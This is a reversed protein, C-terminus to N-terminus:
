ARGPCAPVRRVDLAAVVFGEAAWGLLNLWDGSSGSYGHFTILAPADAAATPVLLKAYVRAGRVGDFTLDFPLDPERWYDTPVGQILPRASSPKYAPGPSPPCRPSACAKTRSWPWRGAIDGSSTLTRPM